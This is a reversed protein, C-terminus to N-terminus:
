KETGKDGNKTENPKQKTDKNSTESAKPTDDVRDLEGKKENWIFRAM